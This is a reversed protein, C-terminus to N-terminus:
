KRIDCAASLARALEPMLEPHEAALVREPVIQGANRRRGWGDVVRRIAAAKDPPGPAPPVDSATVDALADADRAPQPSPPAPPLTEVSSAAPPPVASPSGDTSPIHSRPVDPDGADSPPVDSAALNRKRGKM